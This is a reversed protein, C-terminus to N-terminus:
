VLIFSMIGTDFVDIPVFIIRMNKTRGALILIYWHLPQTIWIPCWSCSALTWFIPVYPVRICDPNRLGSRFATSRLLLLGLPQVKPDGFCRWSAKYMWHVRHVQPCLETSCGRYLNTWTTKWRSWLQSKPSLENRSSRCIHRAMLSRRWEHQVSTWCKLSHNSVHSAVSQCQRRSHGPEGITSSNVVSIAQFQCKITTKYNHQPNRGLLRPSKTNVM